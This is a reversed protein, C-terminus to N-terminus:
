LQCNRPVVCRFAARNLLGSDRGIEYDVGGFPCLLRRGSFPVKAPVELPLRALSRPIRPGSATDGTRIPGLPWFHRLNGVALQPHGQAVQVSLRGFAPGPDLGSSNGLQARPGNPFFHWPGDIKESLDHPRYAASAHDSFLVGTVSGRRVRTGERQCEE